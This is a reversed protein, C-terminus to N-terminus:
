DEPDNDNPFPRAEEDGYYRDPDLADMRESITPHTERERDWREVQEREDALDMQWCEELHRELEESKKKLEPAIGVEENEPIRFVIGSENVFYEIIMGQVEHQCLWGPDTVYNAPEYELYEVVDLKAHTVLGEPGDLEVEIRKM